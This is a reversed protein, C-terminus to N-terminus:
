RGLAALEEVHEVPATHYHQLYFRFAGRTAELSFAMGPPVLGAQGPTVTHETGDVIRKVEGEEVIVKAWQGAPLTQPRRLERPLTRENYHASIERLRTNEPIDNAM